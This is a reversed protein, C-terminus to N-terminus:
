VGLGRPKPLGGDTRVTSTLWHIEEGWHLEDGAM